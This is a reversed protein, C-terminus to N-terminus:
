LYFLLLHEVYWPELARLPTIMKPNGYAEIVYDEMLNYWVCLVDMQGSVERMTDAFRALYQFDHPFFGSLICMQEVLQEKVSSRLPFFSDQPWLARLETGGYRGAAFPEGSLVREAIYTQAEAIPVIPRGAYVEPEKWALHLKRCLTREISRLTGKVWYRSCLPPPSSQTLLGPTLIKFPETTRRQLTIIM